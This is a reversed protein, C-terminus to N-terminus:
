RERERDFRYIFIFISHLFIFIFIYIVMHLCMHSGMHISIHLNFEDWNLICLWNCPHNLPNIFDGEYWIAIYDAYTFISAVNLQSKDLVSPFAMRSHMYSQVLWLNLKHKDGQSGGGVIAWVIGHSQLKVWPPGKGHRCFMQFELLNAFVSPDGIIKKTLFGSAQPSCQFLMMMYDKGSSTFLLQLVHSIKSNPAM